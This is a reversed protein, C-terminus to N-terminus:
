MTIQQCPYVRAGRRAPAALRGDGGVHIWVWSLDAPCSWLIMALCQDIRPHAPDSVKIRIQVLIVPRLEGSRVGHSIKRAHVRYEEPDRPSEDFRFFALKNPFYEVCGGLPPHVFSALYCD